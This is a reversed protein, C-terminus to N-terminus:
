ACSSTASKGTPLPQRTHGKSGDMHQIVARFCRVRKGNNDRDNAAAFEQKARSDAVLFDVEAGAKHERLDM